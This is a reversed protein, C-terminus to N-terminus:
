KENHRPFGVRDIIIIALLYHGLECAVFNMAVYGIEVLVTFSTSLKLDLGKHSM